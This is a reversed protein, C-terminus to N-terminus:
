SKKKSASKKAATKRTSTKKEAPEQKTADATAASEPAAVETRNAVRDRITLYVERRYRPEPLTLTIPEIALLTATGGAEATAM